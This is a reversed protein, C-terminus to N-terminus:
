ATEGPNLPRGLDAMIALGLARLIRGNARLSSGLRPQDARPHIPVEVRALAVGWRLGALALETGISRSADFRGHRRYLSLRYAKLGCLIDRVGFRWRTYLNFLAEALRAPRPREGVVLEAGRELAAIFEILSAADHQGDADFTAVAEFGGEDAAAFGSALAGDYGQNVGHRVVLAGAAAAIAATDDSSCDDVVIAQGFPAVDAIVAAITTAEDFAPIVIALKM